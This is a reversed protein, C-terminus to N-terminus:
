PTARHVPAERIVKIKAPTATVLTMLAAEAQM